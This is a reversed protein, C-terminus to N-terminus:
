KDKILMKDFLCTEHIKNARCVEKKNFPRPVRQFKLCQAFLHFFIQFPLYVLFSPIRKFHFLAPSLPKADVKM